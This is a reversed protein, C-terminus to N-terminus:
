FSVNALYYNFLDRSYQSVPVHFCNIHKKPQETSCVQFIAMETKVKREFLTYVVEDFQEHREDNMLQLKKLEIELQQKFSFM